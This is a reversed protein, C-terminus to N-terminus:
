VKLARKGDWVVQDFEKANVDILLSKQLNLNMGAALNFLALYSMCKTLNLNTAQLFIQTDNAFGLAVLKEKPLEPGKIRGLADQKELFSFLRHTSVTFVLPNLPCGQRVLRQISVPATLRGNVFIRSAAHEGVLFYM